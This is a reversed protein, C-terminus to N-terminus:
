LIHEHRDVLKDRMENMVWNMARQRVEDAASEISENPIKEFDVGTANKGGTIVSGMEEYIGEEFVALIKNNDKEDDALWYLFEGSVSSNIEKPNEDGADHAQRRAQDPLSEREFIHELFIFVAVDAEKLFEESEKYCFQKIEETTADDPPKNDRDDCIATKAFGKEQLRRKLETLYAYCDAEYPGFIHLKLYPYLAKESQENADRVLAEFNREISEDM